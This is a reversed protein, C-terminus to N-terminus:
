FFGFCVSKSIDFDHPQLTYPFVEVSVRFLHIFCYILQDILINLLYM